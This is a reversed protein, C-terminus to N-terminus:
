GYGAAKMLAARCLMEADRLQVKYYALVGLASIPVQVMVTVIGLVKYDSYAGPKYTRSLQEIVDVWEMPPVHEATAALWEPVNIQLTM